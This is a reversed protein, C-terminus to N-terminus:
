RLSQTHTHTAPTNKKKHTSCNSAWQGRDKNRERKKNKKRRRRGSTTIYHQHQPSLPPKAVTRKLTVQDDTLHVLARFTHSRLQRTGKLFPFFFIVFRRQIIRMTQRTVPLFLFFRINLAMIYSYNLKDDYCKSNM